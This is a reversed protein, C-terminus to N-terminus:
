NYQNMTTLMSMPSHLHLPGSGISFMTPLDTNRYQGGLLTDSVMYWLWATGFPGTATEHPSLTPISQVPFFKFPKKLRRPLIKKVKVPKNSVRKFQSPKVSVIKLKSSIKPIDEFETLPKRIRLRREGGASVVATKPDDGILFPHLLLESTSGRDQPRRAFCKELFQRADLPVTEPIEANDLPNNPTKEFKRMVLPTYVTVATYTKEKLINM